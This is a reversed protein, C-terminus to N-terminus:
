HIVPTFENKSGDRTFVIKRRVQLVCHVKFRCNKPQDKFPSCDNLWIKIYPKKSAGLAVGVTEDPHRPSLCLPIALYGKPIPVGPFMEKMMNKIVSLPLTVEVNGRWYSVQSIVDWGDYLKDPNGTYNSLCNYETAALNEAMVFVNKVIRPDTVSFSHSQGYSLDNDSSMTVFDEFPWTYSPNCSLMMQKEAELVDMYYAYISCQELRGGTPVGDLLSLDPRSIREIKTVEGAENRFVRRMRLIKSIDLCPVVSFRVTDEKRIYYNPFFSSPQGRSFSFPLTPNTVSAPLHRCWDEEYDNNGLLEQELAQNKDNYFGKAADMAVQSLGPGSKTNIKMTISTCPKMARNHCWAIQIDPHEKKVSLEPWNQEVSIRHLTHRAQDVRYLVEKDSVTAELREPRIGYYTSQMQDAVIPSYLTTGSNPPPFDYTLKGSSERIRHLECQETTLDTPDGDM